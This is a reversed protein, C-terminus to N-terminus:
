NKACVVYTGSEAIKFTGDGYILKAEKEM